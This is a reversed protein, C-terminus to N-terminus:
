QKLCKKMFYTKVSLNWIYLWLTFLFVAILVKLLGTLFASPLEGHIELPVIMSSVIYFLLILMMWNLFIIILVIKVRNLM